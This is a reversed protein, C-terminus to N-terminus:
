EEEKLAQKNDFRVIGTLHPEPSDRLFVRSKGRSFFGNGTRAGSEERCASLFRARRGKGFVGVRKMAGMSQELPSPPNLITSSFEQLTDESHQPPSESPSGRAKSFSCPSSPGMKENKEEFFSRGRKKSFRWLQCNPEPTEIIRSSPHPRNSEVPITLRFSCTSIGDVEYFPPFLYTCFCERNSGLTYALRKGPERRRNGPPTSWCSLSGPQGQVHHTFHKSPQNAPAEGRRAGDSSILPSSVCTSAEPQIDGSAPEIGAAEVM